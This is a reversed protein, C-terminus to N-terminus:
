LYMCVHINHINQIDWTEYHGFRGVAALGTASRSSRGTASLCPSAQSPSMVQSGDTLQYYSWTYM